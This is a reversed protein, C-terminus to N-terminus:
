IDLPLKPTSVQAGARSRSRAVQELRVPDLITLHGRKSRILKEGELCHIAVTVGARRCGIADALAEHTINIPRAGLRQAALVLWRALRTEVAFRANVHATEAIQRVLSSAFQTLRSRLEPCGMMAEDFASAPITLTKLETRALVRFLAAPGGFFALSGIVGENGILAVDVAASDDPWTAAALGHEILLVRDVEQGPRYIIEGAAFRRPTSTDSFYGAGFHTLGTILKNMAEPMFVERRLVAGRLGLDLYPLQTAIVETLGRPTSMADPPISYGRFRGTKM